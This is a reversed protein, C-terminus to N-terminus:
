EELLEPNDHINGIIELKTKDIGSIVVEFPCYFPEKNIQKEYAIPMRGTAVYSGNDYSVVGIWDPEYRYKHFKIVDGEFIKKGNKDTLGTFQGVTDSYVPIKAIPDFTYIVYFDGTGPFIGGYVWNSEVPTGDMWVKEGKRRTQGRFLIERM